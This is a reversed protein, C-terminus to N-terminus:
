EKVSEHSVEKKSDLPVDFGLQKSYIQASDYAFKGWNQVTTINNECMTDRTAINYM